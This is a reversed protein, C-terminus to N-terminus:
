GQFVIQRRFFHFICILAVLLIIEKTDDSLDEIQMSSLGNKIQNLQTEIELNSSIKTQLSKIKKDGEFPMEDYKPLFKHKPVIGNNSGDEDDYQYEFDSTKFGVEEVKIKFNEVKKLEELQNSKKLHSILSELDLYIKM